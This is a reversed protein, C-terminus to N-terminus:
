QHKGAQILLKFESQDEAILALPCLGCVVSFKEHKGHFRKM